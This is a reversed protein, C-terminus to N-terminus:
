DIYKENLLKKVRTNKLSKFDIRTKKNPKYALKYMKELKTKYEKRQDYATRLIQDNFNTESLFVDSPLNPVNRIIFALNKELNTLNNEGQMIILDDSFDLSEKFFLFSRLEDYIILKVLDIDSSPFIFVGEKSFKEFCILAEKRLLFDFEGTELGLFTWFLKASQIIIDLDIEQISVGVVLSHASFLSTSIMLSRVQLALGKRYRLLSIPDLLDYRKRKLIGIDKENMLKLKLKKLFLIRESFNLTSIVELEPGLTKAISQIVSLSTTSSGSSIVKSYFRVSKLQQVEKSVLIGKLNNTIQALNAVLFMSLIIDRPSLLMSIPKLEKIFIGPLVIKRSKSTVSNKLSFM